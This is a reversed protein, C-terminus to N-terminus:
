VAFLLTCDLKITIFAREDLDRPDYPDPNTSGITCLVDIELHVRASDPINYAAPCGM